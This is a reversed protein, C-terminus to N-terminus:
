FNNKRKLELDRNRITRFNVILLGHPNNETRTTRTISGETVLERYLVSSPREIRQRGYYVFKMTSDDFKISDAMISFNASASMINQYFGKEHLTNRQTLGSEDVLYMAKELNYNIYKEDPALTFFLRHFLAIHAKAEVDLNVDASTQSAVYPVSMGDLVYIKKREERVMDLSKFFVVLVLLVAAVIVAIVVFTDWKRRQDLFEIFSSM